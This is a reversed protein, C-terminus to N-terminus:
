FTINLGAQFTRFFPYTVGANDPFEPDIFSFVKTFEFVDQGSVFVRVKNLATKKMLSGPLTYGLEVNKVRLYAANQLWYDSALYSHTSNLYPRPWFANPNEPTWYDLQEKYPMRVESFMPQFDVTNLLMKRQAVGQLFTSFSFGKYEFGLNLGFMYRPNTDGMRVLDGPNALTGDGMSIKKDGDLDLYKMDGQGTKPNIVVGYDKYEQDSQFLGDTKYGWITNLPLGEILGVRGLGVINRGKYKTLKNTNDSILASVWYKFPKSMDKWGINMEWGTTKLEGINFTPLGVGIISQVEMNALMDKNKKVYFDASLNLRNDFMWTDLGINATEITEWTKNPSALQSQYIRTNRANNFPINNAAYLMGIYDYYGLADSNGLQGWSGRVKVNNVLNNKPFFDENSIVWGASLSPFLQWRNEPALRSSGDYRLNSEFLYKDKYNYNFRGFFGMTAATTIGDSVTASQPDGWNLSFMENTVLSKIGAAINDYRFDEFSYGGLLGFEHDQRVKLNYTAFAQLSTFTNANVYKNMSNTPNFIIPKGEAGIYTLTKQFSNGKSFGLRKSGIVDVNLGPLLDKIKLNSSGEFTYLRRTSKGEDKEVEIISPWIGNSAHYSGDPRYPEEWGWFKYALLIVEDVGRVPQYVDADTYSLTSNLSVKKSLQNSLNLRLNYREESDPGYRLIGKRNYYGASMYYSTKDNGGRVAVNHTQIPNVKKLAVAIQDVDSYSVWVNPRTPDIIFHEGPYFDSPRAGTRIGITDIVDLKEGRMWAYKIEGWYISGTSNFVSMDYYKAEDWSKMRTPMRSAQTVGYNGSYSVEVKDKKGKKTTVLMVGGAANSGYIAAAAADKLVSISEIDNPNLESFSGRVGDIMVLVGVNNISSAGRIQVAYNEGGPKGNTRTIGVGPIAGQMAALPTSMSKNEFAEQSITSVAGTLNVKKSTGYGVVVVDELPNTQFDLKLQVDQDSSILLEQTMHGVHHFLLTQGNRAPISFEGRKNTSTKVQSGKVEVTVGDLPLGNADTVRGRIAAQMAFDIKALPHAEVKEPLIGMMMVTPIFGLLILNRHIKRPIGKSLLVYNRM